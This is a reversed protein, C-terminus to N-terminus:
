SNSKSEREKAEKEKMKYYSRMWSLEQKLCISDKLGLKDFWKGYDERHNSALSKDLLFMAIERYNKVSQEKMGFM